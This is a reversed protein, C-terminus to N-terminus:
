INVKESSSFCSRWIHLLGVTTRYKQLCLSTHVIDANIKMVMIAPVVANNNSYLSCLPSYYYMQEFLQSQKLKAKVFVRFIRGNLEIKSFPLQYLVYCPSKITINKRRSRERTLRIQFHNNLM